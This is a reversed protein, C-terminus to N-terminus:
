AGGVVAWGQSCTGNEACTTQLFPPICAPSGSEYCYDDCSSSRDKHHLANCRLFVTLQINVREVDILHKGHAISKASQVRKQPIQQGFGMASPTATMPSDIESYLGSKRKKKPEGSPLSSLGAEDDVHIDALGSEIGLLTRLLNDRDKKFQRENQELRKLEM